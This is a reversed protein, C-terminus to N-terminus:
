KSAIITNSRDLGIYSTLYPRVFHAKGHKWKAPAASEGGDFYIFDIRKIGEHKLAALCDRYDGFLTFRAIRNGKLGIFNRYDDDNPRIPQADGTMVFRYRRVNHLNRIDRVIFTTGNRCVVLAPRVRKIYTNFGVVMKYEIVTLDINSRKKRPIETDWYGGPIVCRTLLKTKAQARTLGGKAHVMCVATFWNVSYPTITCKSAALPALAVLLCFTYLM